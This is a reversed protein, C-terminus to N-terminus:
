RIITTSPPTSSYMQKSIAHRRNGIRKSCILVYNQKVIWVSLVNGRPRRKEEGRHDIDGNYTARSNLSSILVDIVSKTKGRKKGIKKRKKENKIEKEEEVRGKDGDIQGIIDLYDYRSSCYSKFHRM